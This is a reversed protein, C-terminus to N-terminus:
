LEDDSKKKKKNPGEDFGAIVSVSGVTSPVTVNVDTYIFQAAGGARTIQVEHSGTKSYLQQANSDTAAIQIPLKVPGDAAMPGPVVKGAIAVEMVITGPQYTCKRTAASLSSQYALKTPDDDGGKAYVKLFASAERLTVNPCYARLESQLIEGEPPKTGGATGPDIAAASDGSRCGAGALMFSMAFLVVVVRGDLSRFGM